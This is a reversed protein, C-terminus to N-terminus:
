TFLCNDCTM